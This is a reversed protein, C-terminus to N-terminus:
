IKQKQPSPEVQIVQAQIYKGLDFKGGDLM